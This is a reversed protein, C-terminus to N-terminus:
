FWEKHDEESYATFVKSAELGQEVNVNRNILSSDSLYLYKHISAFGVRLAERHFRNSLIIFNRFLKEENKTSVAYSKLKEWAKIQHIHNSSAATKIIINIAQRKCNASRKITIFQQNLHRSVSRVLILILLRAQLHRRTPQKASTRQFHKGLM